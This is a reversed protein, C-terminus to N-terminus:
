DERQSIRSLFDKSGNRLDFNSSGAFLIVYPGFDVTIVNAQPPLPVNPTEAIQRKRTSILDPLISSGGRSGLILVKFDRVAPIPLQTEEQTESSPENLITFSVIKGVDLFEQSSTSEIRHLPVCTRVGAERKAESAQEDGYLHDSRRQRYHFVAERIERRWDIASESTDFLFQVTM